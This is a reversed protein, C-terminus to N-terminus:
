RGDLARGRANISTSGAPIPPIEISFEHWEFRASLVRTDRDFAPQRGSLPFEPIAPLVGPVLDILKELATGTQREFRHIAVALRVMQVRQWLHYYHDRVEALGNELLMGLVADGSPDIWVRAPLPTPVPEIPGNAFPDRRCARVLDAFRRLVRQRKFRSGFQGSEELDDWFTPWSIESSVEAFHEATMADFVSTSLEWALLRDLVTHDTVDALRGSEISHTAEEVIAILGKSEVPTSYSLRFVETEFALSLYRFTQDFEKATAELLAAQLLVRHVPTHFVFPEPLPPLEIPTALPGLRAPDVIPHLKEELTVRRPNGGHERFEREFRAFWVRLTRQLKSFEANAALEDTAEGSERDISSIARFTVEVIEEAEIPPESEFRAFPDITAVPPSAIILDSVDPPPEDFFYGIAFLGAITFFCAIVVHLPRLRFRSQTPTEVESEVREGIM